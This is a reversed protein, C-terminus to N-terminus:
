VCKGFTGTKSKFKSERAVIHAGVISSVRGTDLNTQIGSHHVAFISRFLGLSHNIEVTMNQRAYIIARCRKIFAQLQRSKKHSIANGDDGRRWMAMFENMQESGVNQWM